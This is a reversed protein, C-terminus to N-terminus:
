IALSALTLTSRWACSSPRLDFPEALLTTVSPCVSPRVSAVLYMIERAERDIVFQNRLKQHFVCCMVARTCNFHTMILILTSVTTMTVGWDRLKPVLDHAIFKDEYIGTRIKATIPVNAVSTMGQIVQHLKNTRGMM